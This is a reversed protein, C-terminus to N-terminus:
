ELSGVWRYPGEGHLQVAQMEPETEIAQRLGYVHWYFAGPPGFVDFRNNHVDTASLVRDQGNYVPTLQITFETALRDVYDPLVITTQRENQKIAGRGRYYVGAEPGELCAHVLYKNSIVPHPIVFTKTGYVIENTGTNYTLVPQITTDNNIPAVYFGATTSADLENGTANIVISHPLQHNLGANYGIAVSAMGQNSMGAGMGIAVAAPGQRIQGADSGIAVSAPGQQIQGTDSGIAVAAMGQNSQGAALGFAVALMGQLTSGSNSGLAIKTDGGVAFGGGNFYLYEGFNSGVPLQQINNISSAFISSVYLGPSEIIFNNSTCIEDFRAINRLSYNTITSTQDPYVMQELVQIQQSFPVFTQRMSTGSGQTSLFPFWGLQVQQGRTVLTSGEFTSAAYMYEKDIAFTTNTFNDTFTLFDTNTSIITSGAYVVCPDFISDTLPYDQIQNHNITLNVTSITSITLTDPVLFYSSINNLFTFNNNFTSYLANIGTSTTFANVNAFTSNTQYVLTSLETELGTNTSTLVVLSSLTSTEVSEFVVAVDSIYVDIGGLGVYNLTRGGNVQNQLSSFSLQEGSAVIQEPGTNYITLQPNGRVDNNSYFQMGAGNSLSFVNYQNSAIYQFNGGSALPATVANVARTASSITSPLYEFATGGAGDSFFLQNPPPPQNNPNKYIIKNVFLTDLNLSRPYAGSM